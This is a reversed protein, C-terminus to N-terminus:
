SKRHYNGNLPSFRCSDRFAQLIRWSIELFLVLHWGARIQQPELQKAGGNGRTKNPRQFKLCGEDQVGLCLRAQLGMWDIGSVASEHWRLGHLEYSLLRCSQPSGRTRQNSIAPFQASQCKQGCEPDWKCLLWVLAGLHGPVNELIPIYLKSEIKLHIIRHSFIYGHGIGCWELYTRTWTEPNIILLSNRWKESEWVRVVQVLLLVFLSTVRSEDKSSIEHHDIQASFSSIHRASLSSGNRFVRGFTNWTECRAFWFLLWFFSLNAPEVSPSVLNQYTLLYLQLLNLCIIIM